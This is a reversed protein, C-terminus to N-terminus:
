GQLVRSNLETSWLPKVQMHTIVFVDISLMSEPLPKVRLSITWNPISSKMEQADNRPSTLLLVRKSASSKGHVLINPLVDKSVKIIDYGQINVLCMPM